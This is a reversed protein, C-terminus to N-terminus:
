QEEQPQEEPANLLALFKVDWGLVEAEDLLVLAARYHAKMEERSPPPDAAFADLIQQARAGLAALRQQLEQAGEVQAVSSLEQEVTRLNRLVVAALGAAAPRYSGFVLTGYRTPVDFSDIGTNSWASKLTVGTSKQRRFLDFGWSSGERPMPADLSALALSFEVTWRDELRQAKVKLDANWTQDLEIADYFSSIPNVIVQFYNAKEHHPDFHVEISDDEWISDDRPRKQYVLLAMNPDLCEVAVYIRNEDYLVRGVTQAQPLTAPASLLTFATLRDGEQWQPDDLYGDIIPPEDVRIALGCRDFSGEQAFVLNAALCLAIAALTLLRV